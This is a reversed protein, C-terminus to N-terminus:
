STIITLQSHHPMKTHQAKPNLPNCSYLLIHNISIQKLKYTLTYKSRHFMINKDNHETTWNYDWVM